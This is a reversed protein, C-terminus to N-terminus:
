PFFKAHRRPRQGLEDGAIYRRRRRRRPAARVSNLPFRDETPFHRFLGFDHGACARCRRERALGGQGAGQASFLCTMSVIITSLLLSRM